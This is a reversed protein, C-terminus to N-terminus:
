MKSYFVGGLFAPYKIKAAQRIFISIIVTEPMLNERM